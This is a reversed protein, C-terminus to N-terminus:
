LVLYLYNLISYIIEKPDFYNVTVLALHEQQAKALEEQRKLARENRSFCVM